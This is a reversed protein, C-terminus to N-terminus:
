DTLIRIRDPPLAAMCEDGPNLGILRTVMAELPLGDCDLCVYTSAGRFRVGSIVAKLLNDEPFSAGFSLSVQEPRIALWANQNIPGLSRLEAKQTFLRHGGLITQFEPMDAKSSTLRRAEILNHRGTLVAVARTEPEDYLEQPTGAQRIYGDIFAAARDATLLIDNFDSTCFLVPIKKEQAIRRIEAAIEERRVTELGSLPDELILPGNPNSIASELAEARQAATFAAGTLRM